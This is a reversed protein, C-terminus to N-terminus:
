IENELFEIFDEGVSYLNGGKIIKSQIGGEKFIEIIKKKVPKMKDLYEIGEDNALAFKLYFLVPFENGEWQEEDSTFYKKWSKRASDINEMGEFITAMQWYCSNDGKKAGETFYKLAISESKKMGKGNHYMNALSNYSSVSGLKIAKLYYKLAESYDQIEDGSGYCYSNAKSEMEYILNSFDEEEEYTDSDIIKFEGFHEKAKLLSDIADKIPIEFFERNSSVRFDKSELYTHVFVEADSCSEFYCSYVVVFPTPVGTTSSLEKAREEPKRTTKGIKVLNDMSPNMLVYVYGNDSM